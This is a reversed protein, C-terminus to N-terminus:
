LLTREIANNWDSIQAQMREKTLAPNSVAMRRGNPSRNRIPRELHRRRSWRPLGGRSGHNGPIRSRVVPVGLLDAQIQMLLENQTAGGDSAFNLSNSARITKCRTYFTTPRFPLEKSLPAHSTANTQVALSDPSRATPFGMGTRLESDPLHPFLTSAAMTMSRVACTGRGGLRLFHHRASRSAMARCSRWHLHQGRSRIRNKRRDAMRYDYHSPKKISCARHRHEHAHFLRHWLHKKAMGAQHCAQGFLAAHQDGAVGSIPIAAGFLDPDTVALKGSSECVDPLLSIPFRFFTWCRKAGPSMALISSCPAPHTPSM